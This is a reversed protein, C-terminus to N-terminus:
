AFSWEDKEIDLPSMFTMKSDRTFCKLNRISRFGHKERVGLSAPSAEGASGCRWGPSSRRGPRLSSPPLFPLATRGSFVSFWGRFERQPDAKLKAGGGEKGPGASPSPPFFPPPSFLTAVLPPRFLVCWLACHQTQQVWAHWRFGASWLASASASVRLCRQQEHARPKRKWVIRDLVHGLARRCREPPNEVERSQPFALAPFGAGAGFLWLVPDARGVCSIRGPFSPLFTQCSKSVLSPGLASAKCANPWKNKKLTAHKTNKKQIVREHSQLSNSSSWESTWM